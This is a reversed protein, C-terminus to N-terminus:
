PRVVEVPGRVPLRGGVVVEGEGEGAAGEAAGNVCTLQSYYGEVAAPTQNLFSLLLVSLLCVLSCGRSVEGYVPCIEKYFLLEGCTNLFFNSARVCMYVCVSTCGPVAADGV